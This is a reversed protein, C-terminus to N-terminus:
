NTVIEKAPLWVIWCRCRPHAPPFETWGDGQKKDQRPYCIPCQEVIEDNNTQWVPVLEAGAKRLEDVFVREGEAAARTVETSAIIEARVVGYERSLRETLNRMTLGREFFDSVAQRIIPRTRGNIGTVLNFTYQRAWDAARQNILSWDVGISTNSLMAEAATVFVKELQPLIASEMRTQIEQWVDTTLNEINPPDGLLELIQNLTERNAKGLVRALQAELEDRNNLEPM